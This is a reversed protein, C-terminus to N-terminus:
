RSSELLANLIECLATGGSNWPREALFSQIGMSEAERVNGEHDDIFLDAQKLWKLYDAKKTEYGLAMQGTRSSPVFHFSRMWDGFYRMVWWASVHAANRPASTLAVHRFLLGHNQFWNLIRPEPKMAKYGGSLRFTDLSNLYEDLSVGLLRHPPNMKIDEYCVKCEPHPPKWWTDLWVSMLDNLVDDVDWVITIM